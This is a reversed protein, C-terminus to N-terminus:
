SKDDVSQLHRVIEPADADHSARIITVTAPTCGWAAARDAGIAAHHILRTLGNRWRRSLLGTSAVSALLRPRRALLVRVTRQTVGVGPYKGIDHLLAAALLDANTEAQAALQRYVSLAHRQDAKPLMRFAGAAQEPLIALAADRVKVDLPTLPSLLARMGQVTRYRVRGAEADSAASPM